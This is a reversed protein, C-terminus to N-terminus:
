MSHVHKHAIDGNQTQLARCNNDLQGGVDAMRVPLLLPLLPALWSVLLLPPLWHSVNWKLPPRL